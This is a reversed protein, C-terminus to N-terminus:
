HDDQPDHAERIARLAANFADRDANDSSADQRDAEFGESVVLEGDVLDAHPADGWLRELRYFDRTEPQFIHVIVSGFDMLDWTNDQRGEISFAYIGSPRLRNEIEDVIADVMRNNDGTAIVFYDTIDSKERLDLIVIDHGQRDDIIRAIELALDKPEM